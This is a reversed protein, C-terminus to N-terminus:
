LQTTKRRVYAFNWQSILTIAFIKWAFRSTFGLTIFSRAFNESFLARGVM